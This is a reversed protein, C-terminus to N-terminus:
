CSYVTLICVTEEYNNYGSLKKSKKGFFIDSVILVLMSALGMILVAYIPHSFLTIDINRGVGVLAHFNNFLICLCKRGVFFVASSLAGPIM